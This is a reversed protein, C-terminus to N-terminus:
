LNFDHTRIRFPRSPTRHPTSKDKSEDEPLQDGDDDMKKHRIMDTIVRDMRAVKKRSSGQGGSGPTRRPTVHLSTNDMDANLEDFDDFETPEETQANVEQEDRGEDSNQAAEVDDHKEEEDDPLKRKPCVWDLELTGVKDLKEYLAVIVSPPPEWTRRDKCKDAKEKDEESDSCLVEFDGTGVDERNSSETQQTQMAEIPSGTGTADKESSEADMAVLRDIM